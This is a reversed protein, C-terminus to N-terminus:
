VRRLRQEGVARVLRLRLTPASAPAQRRRRLGNKRAACSACRLILPKLARARTPAGKKSELIAHPGLWRARLAACPM